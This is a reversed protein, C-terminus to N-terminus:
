AGGASRAEKAVSPLLVEFTAGGGPTSLFEIAGGHARLIGQVAALGLGHGLSKTTHFPDFLRAPVDHAMGRGSESVTLCAYTGSPLSQWREEAFGHELRVLKTAVIIRGERGELAEAANMILNLVIQRIQAANAPIAPLQEALSTEFAIASPISVRLLRLMDKVLSSLSVPELVAEEGRGRAYAILLRVIEAARRSITLIKEVSDRAPSDLPLDLLAVDSQGIIAGLLVNFDHAIGAALVKLGKLEQAALAREHSRRLDSIDTSTGVHGAYVRDKFRPIGVTLM